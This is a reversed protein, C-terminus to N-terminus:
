EADDDNLPKWADGDMKLFRTLIQVLECVEDRTFVVFVGEPDESLINQRIVLNGATNLYLEAGFRPNIKFAFESDSSTAPALPPDTKQTIQKDKLM